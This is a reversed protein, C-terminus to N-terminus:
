SLKTATGQAWLSGATATRQYRQNRIPYDVLLEGGEVIRDVMQMEVKGKGSLETVLAQYSGDQAAAQSAVVLIDAPSSSAAPAPASPEVAPTPTGNMDLDDSFLALSAM